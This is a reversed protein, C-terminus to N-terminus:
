NSKRSKREWKCHIFMGVISAWSAYTEAGIGGGQRSYYKLIEVTHLSNVFKEWRTQLVALSEACTASGFSPLLTSCCVTLTFLFLNHGFFASLLRGGRRWTWCDLSISVAEWVVKAKCLFLLFIISFLVYLTKSELVGGATQSCCKEKVITQKTVTTDRQWPPHMCTRLPLLPPAPKVNVSSLRTSAPGGFGGTRRGLDRNSEGSRILPARNRWSAGNINM